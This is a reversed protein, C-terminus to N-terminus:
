DVYPNPILSRVWIGSRLGGIRPPVKCIICATQLDHLCSDVRLRACLGPGQRLVVEAPTRM